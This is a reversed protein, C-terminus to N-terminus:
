IISLPTKKHRFKDFQYGAAQLGQAGDILTQNGVIHFHGFDGSTGEPLSVAFGLHVAGLSERDDLIPGVHTVQLLPVIGDVGGVGPEDLQGLLQAGGPNTNGAGPGVLGVVIKFALISVASHRLTELVHQGLLLPQVQQIEYLGHVSLQQNGNGVAGADMRGVLGHGELLRIQQEAGGLFVAHGDRGGLEGVLGIQDSQGTQRLAVGSGIVGTVM